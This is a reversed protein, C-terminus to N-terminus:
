SGEVKAIAAQMVDQITLWHHYPPERGTVRWNQILDDAAHTAALLEDRQQKLEAIRAQQLDLGACFVLYASTSNTAIGGTLKTFMGRREQETMERGGIRLVLEKLEPTM